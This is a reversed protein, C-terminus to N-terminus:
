KTNVVRTMFFSTYIDLLRQNNDDPMILEERIFIIPGKHEQAYYSINSHILGYPTSIANFLYVLDLGIRKM